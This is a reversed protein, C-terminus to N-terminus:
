PAVPAPVPAPPVAYALSEGCRWCYIAGRAHSASCRRCQGAVGQDSAALVRELEGLEADAARLEASRKVLVDLHFHGTQAMEATLGGLDFQLTAVLRAAEKRRARLAEPSVDDSVVFL